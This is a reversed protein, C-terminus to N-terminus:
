VARATLDGARGVDDSAGEGAASPRDPLLGPREISM